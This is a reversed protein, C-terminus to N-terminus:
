VSQGQEIKAYLQSTVQDIPAMGDVKQVLGQKEYYRLVAETELHYAKLRQRVTDANDDSRRKFEISGCVDCVGEV